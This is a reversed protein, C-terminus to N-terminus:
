PHSRAAEAERLLLAYAADTSAQDVTSSASRDAPRPEPEFLRDIAASDLRPEPAPSQLAGAARVLRRWEEMTPELRADEDQRSVLALAPGAAGEGRAAILVEGAFAIDSPRAREEVLTRAAATASELSEGILDAKILAKRAAISQPNKDALARLREIRIAPPEAEILTEYAALLREAPEREFAALIARRTRDPDAGDRDLAAKIVVALPGLPDLKLSLDLAQRAAAEDDAKLAAAAEAAALTASMRKQSQPDIAAAAGARDVITRARRWAGVALAADLDAEFAWRAGPAAEAASAAAAKRAEGDGIEDAAAFLGRRAATALVPDDVAREFQARAEETEGADLFAEGLLLRRMPDRDGLHRQLEHAHRRARKQDGAAASARVLALEALAKEERSLARASALRGPLGALDKMLSTLGVILGVGFIALFVFARGDIDFRRGFAEGSVWGGGAFVSAFVAVALAILTLITLRRFM